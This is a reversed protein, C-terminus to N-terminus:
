CCESWGVEVVTARSSKKFDHVAVIVIRPERYVEGFPLFGIENLKQLAESRTRPTTGDPDCSRLGPRLTVFASSRIPQAKQM